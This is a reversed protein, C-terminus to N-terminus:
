FDVGVGLVTVRREAASSNLADIIEIRLPPDAPRQPLRVALSCYIGRAFLARPIVTDL